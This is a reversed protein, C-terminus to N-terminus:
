YDTISPCAAEMAKMADDCGKPRQDYKRQWDALEREAVQAERKAEAVATRGAEEIRLRQGVESELNQRCRQAEGRVRNVQQEVAAVDALAAAGMQVVREECAAQVVVIQRRADLAAFAALTFCIGLVLCALRWWEVPSRDKRIWDVAGRVAGFAAGSVSSALKLAAAPNLVAAAIIAAVIGGGALWALVQTM